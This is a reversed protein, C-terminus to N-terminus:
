ANRRGRRRDLALFLSGLLLFFVALAAAAGAVGWPGVVHADLFPYPMWLPVMTGAVPISYYPTQLLGALCFISILYVVPYGLWGFVERQRVQGHPAFVGHDILALLPVVAHLALTSTCLYPNKPIGSMPFLLLWYGLMTVTIYCTCALHVGPHIVAIELRGTKRYGRWAKWALVGFILTSFINTQVTFYALDHNMMFGGGVVEDATLQMLIGVVGTLFGLCRFILAALPKHKM